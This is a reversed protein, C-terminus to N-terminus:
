VKTASFLLNKNQIFASEIVVCEITRFDSSFKGKFHLIREECFIEINRKEIEVDGNINLNFVVRSKTGLVALRGDIMGSKIKKVDFIKFLLECERKIKFLGFFLSKVRVAKAIYLKQLKM